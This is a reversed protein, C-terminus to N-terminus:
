DSDSSHHSAASSPPKVRSHQDKSVEVVRDDPGVVTSPARKTVVVSPARTISAASKTSTVATSSAALPTTALLPVKTTTTTTSLPAKTTRTTTSAATAKTTSTAATTAVPGKSDQGGHTAITSPAKAPPKIVSFAQAGEVVQTNARIHVPHEPDTRKILVMSAQAEPECTVVVTTPATDRSSGLCSVSDGPVVRRDLRDGSSTLATRWSTSAPKPASDLVQICESMVIYLMDCLYRDKDTYRMVFYDGGKMSSSRAIERFFYFLFMDFPPVRVRVNSVDDGTLHTTARIFATAAHPYEKDAITPFRQLAHSTEEGRVGADWNTITKLGKKFKSKRDEPDTYEKAVLTNLELFCDDVLLKLESLFTRVGDDAAFGNHEAAAHHHTLSAM